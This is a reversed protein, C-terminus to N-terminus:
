ITVGRSQRGMVSAACLILIFVVAFALHFYMYVHALASSCKSNAPLKIARLVAGYIDTGEGALERGCDDSHDIEISSFSSM